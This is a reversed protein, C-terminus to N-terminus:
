KMIMLAAMTDMGDFLNKLRINENEAHQNNDHNVKPVTITKAQLYKEFLFLPLSGGMTPQLVVPDPTTTQVAKIVRQAIELDMPTRQANMGDM